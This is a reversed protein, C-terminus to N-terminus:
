TSAADSAATPLPSISSGDGCLTERAIFATVVASARPAIVGPSGAVIAPDQWPSPRRRYGAASPGAVIDFVLILVGAVGFGDIIAVRLRRRFVAAPSVM